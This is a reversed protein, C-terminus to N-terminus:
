HSHGEPAGGTAAIEAIRIFGLGKIAIEDGAVLDSSNVTIFGAEKKIEKFDIRKFFGKRLRFLNVEEGSMVLAEFPIRWPSNGALKVLSIGFSRTAQPSFKMGEHEDYAEIGKGPGIKDSGEAAEEGSDKNGEPKASDGHAADAHGHSEESKVEGAAPKRSPSAAAISQSSILSLALMIRLITNM